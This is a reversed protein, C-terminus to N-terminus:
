VHARGIQRGAAQMPSLLRALVAHSVRGREAERYVRVQNELERLMKRLSSAQLDRLEKRIERKRLDALRGKLSAIERLTLDRQSKNRIM